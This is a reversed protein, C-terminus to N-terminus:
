NKRYAQVSITTITRGTKGSADTVFGEAAGVMFVAKGGAGDVQGVLRPVPLELTAWDDPAQGALVGTRALLTGSGTLDGDRFVLEMQGSSDDSLYGDPAPGFKAKGSEGAFVLEGVFSMGPLIMPKGSSIDPIHVLSIAAHFVGHLSQVDQPEDFLVGGGWVMNQPGSQPKHGPAPGWFWHSGSAQLGAVTLGMQAAVEHIPQLHFRHREHDKLGPTLVKFERFSQGDATLKWGNVNEASQLTGLTEDFCVDTLHLEDGGMGGSYHIVGIGSRAPCDNIRHYPVGGAFQTVPPAADLQSTTPPVALAVFKDGDAQSPSLAELALTEFEPVSLATEANLGRDSKYRAIAASLSADPM